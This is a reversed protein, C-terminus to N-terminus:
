IRDGRNGMQLDGISTTAVNSLEGIGLGETTGPLDLYLRGGVPRMFTRTGTKKGEFNIEMRANLTFFTERLRHEPVHELFLHLHDDM